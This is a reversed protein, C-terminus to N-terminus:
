YCQTNLFQGNRTTTCNVPAPAPPRPPNLMQMIQLTQANQAALAQRRQAEASQAAANAQQAQANGTAIMSRFEAAGRDREAIFQGYNIDRAYLKAMLGLLNSTQWDFAARVYPPAYQNRFAIGENHCAQRRNGWHSIAQREEDTALDKNARMELTPAPPSSGFPGLRSELPKFAPDTVMTAICKMSPDDQPGPRPAQSFNLPGTTQCGALVVVAAILAYKM